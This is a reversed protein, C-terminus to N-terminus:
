NTTYSYSPAYLCCSHGHFYCTVRFTENKTLIVILPTCPMSNFNDPTFLVLSLSVIICTYIVIFFQAEGVRESKM